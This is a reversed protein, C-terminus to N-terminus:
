SPHHIKRDHGRHLWAYRFLNRADTYRAESSASGLLVVILHDDGRRGSAVLCAGAAQTTGTKVGDYGEIKLLDNTNTWAVQRKQGKEDTATSDHRTTAVISAFAPNKLALSTLRALDRASSHHGPATLGNPNIFHTEHLELEAAVRNMEAMFHQLPDTQPKTISEPAFRSGLHEGFAVAADNGSPLLLGYLLERVPLHEGARIGSTSGITQDARKSFTVQEDLLGPDGAAARLVLLATMIKTTSAIDLPKAEQYGWLLEGTRADAIAWAKATVFPPGELSDTPLKAPPNSPSAPPNEAASAAGQATAAHTHRLRLNAILPVAIVFAIVYGFSVSSRTPFTRPM